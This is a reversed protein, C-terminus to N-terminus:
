RARLVAGLHRGLASARGDTEVAEPVLWVLVEATTFTMGGLLAVVLWARM